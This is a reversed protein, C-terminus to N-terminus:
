GLEDYEYEAVVNFRDALSEPELENIRANRFWVVGDATHGRFADRAVVALARGREMSAADKQPCFLQVFILGAVNYRAKGPEGVDNSLSGRQEDVTQQSVRAWYVSMDVPRPDRVGQWYVYPVYGVIWPSGSEWAIRFRGFMANIAGQYTTPM